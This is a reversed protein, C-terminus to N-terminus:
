FVSFSFYKRPNQQMDALMTRAARVTAVAEHYLTTDRTLLGLTGRGAQVRALISDTNAILRTIAAQQAAAAGSLGRIDTAISRLDVSVSDANSLIRTLQERDTSSDARAAARAVSRAGLALQRTGSDLQAGIRVLSSEQQRAIQALSRSLISFDRLSNQLRRVSTSDFTSDVRSSLKTINDAIRSAQATIQGIDPLTAGPWADGGARRADLVQRLVAPDDPLSGQSVLQVAWDGFLTRSQIVAVVSDPARRGAGLRLEVNVWGEDGLTVREVRGVDVGQIQVPNGSKLGGITRFRATVLHDGARGSRGSLWMSGAVALAIAGLVVAGVMVENARKV